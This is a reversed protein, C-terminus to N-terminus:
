GVKMGFQASEPAGKLACRLEVKHKHPFSKAMGGVAGSGSTTETKVTNGALLQSIQDSTLEIKHHHLPISIAPNGGTMEIVAADTSTSWEVEGGSIQALVEPTPKRTTPSYPKHTHSIGDETYLKVTVVLPKAPDCNTAVDGTIGGPGTTGTGTGDGEGTGEGEGEVKKGMLVFAAGAAILLPFINKAM